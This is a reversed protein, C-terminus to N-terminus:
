DSIPIRRSTSERISAVITDAENDEVLVLDYHPLIPLIYRTAVIHDGRRCREKIGDSAPRRDDDMRKM